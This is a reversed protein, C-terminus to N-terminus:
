DKIKLVITNKDSTRYGITCDKGDFDRMINKSFYYVGKNDVYFSDDIIDLFEKSEVRKLELRM